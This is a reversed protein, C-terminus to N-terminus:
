QNAKKLVEKAQYYATDMKDWLSLREAQIVMAELAKVLEDHSNVCKEIQKAVKRAANKSNDWRDISLNAIIENDSNRLVVDENDMHKSVRVQLSIADQKVETKTEPKTILEIIERDSSQYKIIHWKGTKMEEEALIKAEAMTLEEGLYQYEYETFALPTEYGMVEFLIETKVETNNNM